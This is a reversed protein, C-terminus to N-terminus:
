DALLSVEHNVCALESEVKGHESRLAQLKAEAAEIEEKLEGLRKVLGQQQLRLFPLKAAAKVKRLRLEWVYICKERQIWKLAARDADLRLKLVHPTNIIHHFGDLDYEYSGRKKGQKLADTLKADEDKLAAIDENLDDIKHQLHSPTLQHLGQLITWRRQRYTREPNRKYAEAANESLSVM